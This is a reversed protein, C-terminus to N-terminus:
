DYDSIYTMDMEYDDYLREKRIADWDPEPEPEDCDDYDEDDDTNVGQIGGCKGCEYACVEWRYETCGKRRTRTM